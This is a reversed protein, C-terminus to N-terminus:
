STAKKILLQNITNYLKSTNKDLNLYYCRGEYIGNNGRIINLGYDEKNVKILLEDFPMDNHYKTENYQLILWLGKELETVTENHISVGLAPMEHSNEFLNKLESKITETTNNDLLSKINDCVICINDCIVFYDSLKLLSINNINIGTCLVLLTSILVNIM